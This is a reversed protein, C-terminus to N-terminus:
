RAHPDDPLTAALTLANQICDSLGPGGRYNGRFHLGPHKHELATLGDVFDGHGVDYQPIAEPWQTHRHFVPEGRVGLLRHLGDLSQAIATETPWAGAEPALVGGLFLMLSVHGEPARGPFLTSSFISGLFPFGESRPVLVGFGDLPHAVQERRFGLVLTAVPPYALPPQALLAAALPPPLQWQHWTAPATTLVVHDFEGSREGVPQTWGAVWRGNAARHLSHFRARLYLADGLEDALRATLEGLGERFSLLQTKFPAEGRAKREKKLKLAGRILSGAERELAWVKPFAHRISLREPDGAYIGSTMPGIAYELFEPGLRRTVFSAVSEDDKDTPPVWPERLLRLKAPWRFLPTSVAALPSAPVAVPRGDRVVFRKGAAENAPTIRDELGVEALFARVAATKVQMSNPGAECLFGDIRESQIAGGVREDAELVTVEFGRKRLGYATTLGSIGAGVLLVTSAAM